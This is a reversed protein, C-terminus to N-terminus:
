DGLLFFLCCIWSASCAVHKISPAALTLCQTAARNESLLAVLRSFMCGRHISQYLTAQNERQLAWASAPLLTTHSLPTRTKMTGSFSRWEWLSFLLCTQCDCQTEGELGECGKRTKSVGTNESFIQRIICKARIRAKRKRSDYQANGTIDTKM